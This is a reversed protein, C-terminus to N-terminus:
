FRITVGAQLADAKFSSALSSHMWRAETGVTANWQYGIGAALGIKTTNSSVKTLADKHEFSWRVASLGATFYFGEPKGAIFYLYDGGLSLYSATQKVTAFSAEPYIGYDLRPRLMHGDSLDFTGHLGVGPGPKSDVYTKLDGLPINVLGQVGYRPAEAQLSSALTALVALTGISLTKM